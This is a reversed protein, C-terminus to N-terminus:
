KSRLLDEFPPHFPASSVARSVERVLQASPEALPSLVLFASTVRETFPNGALNALGSVVLPGFYDDGGIDVVMSSGYLWPGAGAYMLDNQEPVHGPRDTVHHPAQSSVIGLTHLLDHLMAFEWYRPFDTASPVFPNKGCPVPGNPLGKLYMATLQGQLLPPWSAGGCAYTSVGDYYVAYIKGGALYGADRLQREIEDRVFAGFASMEADTKKLRVFTVDPAGRYTDLRLMYGTKQALWTQFSTTSYALDVTTDYSRDAGDSPVAYIVHIQSGSIDDLRDTESRPAPLLM